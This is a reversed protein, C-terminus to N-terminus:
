KKGGLQMEGFRVSRSERVAALRQLLGAAVAVAIVGPEKGTIGAIGIPCIMAALREASIGRAALRREFQRRKSVSGILGFYAFDGRRLIRESLAEDLAHSHTMVLFYSGPAAADVEAAPADTFVVEVNDPVTAPFAGDRTDVWTVRCPIGGLIPVLARGVHGAGFLVVHFDDPFVPDFFCAVGRAVRPDASRDEAPGSGSGVAGTVNGSNGAGDAGPLSALRACRDGTLLDRAIATAAADAEVTGLTGHTETQTVFLKGGPAAGHAPTVVVLADGRARLAQLTAIWTQAGAVPEFLLNVVGGCCQGLSAGLPFRRLPATDGGALQQRAIDIATFELHGGGITGQVADVTVLMRTGAARPASGKVAAVTVMVAASGTRQLAALADIWDRM